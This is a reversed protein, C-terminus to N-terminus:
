NGLKAGTQESIYKEVIARAAGGHAQTLARLNDANFEDELDWASAVDKILDIDDTGSLDKLWASFDDKARHKFTFEVPVSQEGAVPIAVRAKFTPSAALILKKAM